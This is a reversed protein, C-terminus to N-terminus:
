LHGNNQLWRFAPYGWVPPLYFVSIRYLLVAALAAEETMGANVLGFALGGEVVGVGGPIPIIGALLGVSINIVLLEGLGVPTGMARAFAGLAFAFLVESALNGGFLMALKRSSRLSRVAATAERALRSTLGLVAQRWPRVAAVIAIAAVALVVVIGLLGLASDPARDLDLDLSASTLLLLSGLLFAQTVFGGVGDVAGVTIAATPSVGHRQFFRVNVAIRAAVSPIAIAIYSVALQLAYVPGLPLDVPAAGMTSVAQSLRPLQAVVLGIAVFWWRADRVTDVLQEFDIGTAITFLAFAALVPLAIQSVSAFTIRRLQELEPAETGARAAAEARLDDLDLGTDEVGDRQLGTLAPPQLYPLVATLREPGLATLAADIAQDPGALLATTALYQAQDTRRQGVTPAVTGGRFGILGLGDPTVVLHRADVQGHRVGAAHLRDLVRWGEALLGAAVGQACDSLPTGSRRLVLLADDDGTSGAVVVQDTAIGAQAALLTLLAEHEVQALRSLRLQAGPQRLWVARWLTSVLATDYADRGYVRVVIPAGDADLADVTFVGAEQREAEGLSSTAVGLEALAQRVGDLSPRGASSGFVLHVVGGAIVAAVVGATAGLISTASLAVAGLAAGAILWRGLRRAPRTLHPSATIIAAAPVALQVAPYWAPPGYLHWESGPPWGAHVAQAVGYSLAGALGASLALDRAVSLRRLVLAAILLGLGWWVLLGVAVQWLAALLDPLAAIVRNVPRFIAPLPAEALSLFLLGIAGLVVALVDTARRARPADAAGAFLRAGAM